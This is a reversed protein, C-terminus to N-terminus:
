VSEGRLKKAIGAMVFEVCPVAVSNGIAKDEDGELGVVRGVSYGRSTDVVVQDGVQLVLDTMFSYKAQYNGAFIVEVCQM